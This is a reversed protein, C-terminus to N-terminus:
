LLGESELQTQIRDRLQPSCPVLPLRIEPGFVGLLELTAKVPIPNSEVFLLEALPMTAFHMRRATDWDGAAAAACMRAVRDPLVNSVVSIVGKGGMAMLSFASFDDGSLVSIRDGVRAIIQGARRMDGTAEKIAAITDIDALRDVTEPLMDCCTRGPVNYLIIPLATAEAIKEFHRYLGEQTPKNYYPTVHLLAQAGADASAKSLDVAEDTSNAGAGAIVPVRKNAIKVTHEVVSIHERPTLTASEGTTGVAVLAEIGAAIQNEILTGLADFDVGGDRMPTALATM